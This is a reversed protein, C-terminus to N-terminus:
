GRLALQPPAFFVTVYWTPKDGREYGFLQLEGNCCAAPQPRAPCAFLHTTRTKAGIRDQKADTMQINGFEELGVSGFALSTRTAVTWAQKTAAAIRRRPTTRGYISSATKNQASSPNHSGMASHECATTTVCPCPVQFLGPSIAERGLGHGVAKCKVAAPGRTAARVM